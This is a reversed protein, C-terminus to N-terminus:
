SRRFFRRQVPLTYQKESFNPNATGASSVVLLFQFCNGYLTTSSILFIKGSLLSPVRVNWQSEFWTPIYVLFVSLDYKGRVKDENLLVKM